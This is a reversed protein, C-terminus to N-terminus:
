DKCIVASGDYFDTMRDYELPIVLQGKTNVAGRKGDKIVVAYGYSFNVTYDYEIPVIIEGKTNIIGAKGTGGVGKRVGAFGEFFKQMEDYELPIVVEGKTNIAGWKNNKMVGAIGDSFEYVFDYELPIAVKGKLDAFGWKLIPLGESDNGVSKAVMTLGDSFIPPFDGEGKQGYNLSDYEFPVIIEGKKNVIGWKDDSLRRVRAYDGSFWSIHAYEAPLVVEGTKGNYLGYADKNANNDPKAQILLNSISDNFWDIKLSSGAIVTVTYGDPIDEAAVAVTPVATMVVAIILILSIIRKM